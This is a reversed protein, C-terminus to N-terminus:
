VRAMGGSITQKSTELFKKSKEGKLSAFLRNKNLTKKVEASDNIAQNPNSNVSTGAWNNSSMFNGDNSDTTKSVMSASSKGEQINYFGKIYNDYSKKNAGLLTSMPSLFKQINQQQKWMPQSIATSTMIGTPDGSGM